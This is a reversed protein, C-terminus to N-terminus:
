GSNTSINNEQDLSLVYAGDFVYCLHRYQKQQISDMGGVGALSGLQEVKYASWSFWNTIEAMLDKEFM